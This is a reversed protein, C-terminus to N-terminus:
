IKIPKIHIETLINIFRKIFPIFYFFYIFDYIFTIALIVENKRQIVINTLALFIALM